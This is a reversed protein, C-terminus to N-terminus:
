EVRRATSSRRPAPLAVILSSASGNPMDSVPILFCTRSSSCASSTVVSFTPRARLHMSAGYAKSPMLVHSCRSSRKAWTTSRVFPARHARRLLLFSEGRLFLGRHAGACLLQLQGRLALLRDLGRELLHRRGVALEALTNVRDHLLGRRVQRRLGPVAHGRVGVLVALDDHEEAVRRLELLAVRHEPELVVRVEVVARHPRNGVGERRLEGLGVLG